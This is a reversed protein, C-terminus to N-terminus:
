IFNVTIDTDVLTPVQNIQMLVADMNATGVGVKIEYVQAWSGLAFIGAYFRSHFINSGIRARIGGDTGNFAGIVANRMQTIADAPVNINQAMTILFKIPTATPTQYTVTYTPYPSTYIGNGTDIVTVNTNGNYNCGPSKKAWIAEGIAQATGGYAAVYLSHPALPVGGIASTMTESGVTQSINITYTGTGGTGTGLATIYTGQAIGAGTVIQGVAITGSTMATVTLTTTGISATFVAGSTVNTVNEIVYADLVGPVSLVAGLISPLSGQANLAVSDKRRAEFEARSEVNTGLTGATANNISDWGPIAQYIANLFGIPCAVPGTNVCAFTLNISGGAPITGAQTCLYRVGSQDVAQANLPIITGAAGTCTATVVTSSAPIRTLYYIRGIADQMRGSAYAPDVGNALALFQNNKDGIIATESTALQGQPSNLAPNLNGGFATNWDAQVGTLIASELPAIFGKDTFTPQPVNTTM